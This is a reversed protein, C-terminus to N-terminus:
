QYSAINNGPPLLSAPKANADLKYDPISYYNHKVPSGVGQPIVIPKISGAKVYDKDHEGFGGVGCSTLSVVISTIAFVKIFQKM